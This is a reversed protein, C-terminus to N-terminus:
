AFRQTGPKLCMDGGFRIKTGKLDHIDLDDAFAHMADDCFLSVCLVSRACLFTWPIAFPEYNTWSQLGEHEKHKFDNIGLM